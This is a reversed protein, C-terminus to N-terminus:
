NGDSDPKGQTKKTTKAQKGSRSIATKLQSGLNVTVDVEHRINNIHKFEDKYRNAMYFIPGAPNGTGASVKDVIWQKIKLRAKKLIGVFEPKKEYALISDTDNFDLALTLGEVNIPSDTKAADQFYKDILPAMDEPTPYKPPRGGPHKGSKTNWTKNAPTKKTTM